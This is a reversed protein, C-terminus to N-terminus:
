FGEPLLVRWIPELKPNVMKYTAPMDFHIGLERLPQLNKPAVGGRELMLGIVQHYPYVYDLHQLTDVIRQVDVDRAAATEFAQMVEVIGGSYAPRVVIDVLTRELGAVRLQEGAPGAMKIVGYDGSFKGSLLTFRYDQWRFVYRSRRQNSRFARELREQTLSGSPAPKPTQERNLYLNKPAADTLEHLSIASAHTFYAGQRLSVALELATGGELMFRKISKYKEEEPQLEVEQLVGGELLLKRFDRRRRWVRDLFPESEATHRRLDSPLDRELLERRWLAEELLTNLAHKQLVRPQHGQLAELVVQFAEQTAQHRNSLLKAIPDPIPTSM